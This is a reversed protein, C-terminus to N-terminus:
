KKSNTVQVTTPKNALDSLKRFYLKGDINVLGYLDTQDCPACAVGQGDIPCNAFPAFGVYRWGYLRKKGDPGSGVVSEYFGLPVDYAEVTVSQNTAVMPPDGGGPIPALLKPVTGLLGAIATLFESAKSDLTAHVGKINWGDTLDVVTHNTGVGPRIHISYQESFDPLWKLEMKVLNPNETGEPPQILLFPKPRYYRFGCDHSGPNPKFRTSACGAAAAVALIVTGIMAWTRATM